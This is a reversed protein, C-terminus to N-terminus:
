SQPCQARRRPSPLPTDLVLTAVGAADRWVGAQGGEELPLREQGAGLPPRAPGWRRGGRPKAGPAGVVWGAALHHGCSSRGRQQQKGRGAKALALCCVTIAVGRDQRLGCSCPLAQARRGECPCLLPCAWGHGPIDLRRAPTQARGGEPNGSESPTHPLTGPSVGLLSLIMETWFLRGGSASEEGLCPAHGVQPSTSERPAEWLAGQVRVHPARGVLSAFCLRCASPFRLGRPGSAPFWSSQHAALLGCFLGCAREESCLPLSALRSVPRPLGPPWRLCRLHLSSPFPAPVPRVPVQLQRPPSASCTHPWGCHGLLDWRSRWQGRVLSM